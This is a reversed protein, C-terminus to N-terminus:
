DMAHCMVCIEPCNLGVFCRGWLELVLARWCYGNFYSAFRQFLGHHDLLPNTETPSYFLSGNRDMTPLGNWPSLRRFYMHETSPKSSGHQSGLFIYGNFSSPFHSYIKTKLRARDIQTHWESQSHSHNSDSNSSSIVISSFPKCININPEHM